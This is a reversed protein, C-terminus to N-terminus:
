EQPRYPDLELIDRLAPPLCAEHASLEFVILRDWDPSLDLSWTRADNPELAQHCFVCLSSRRKSM